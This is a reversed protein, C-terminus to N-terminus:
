RPPATYGLYIWSTNEPHVRMTVPIQASPLKRTVWNKGGDTTKYFTSRIGVTSTYYMEKENKPNVAFAYISTSGPPTIMNIPDWDDGGNKSVLVGYRSVWYIQEAKTPYIYIRRYQLAGPYSKLSDKINTWTAGGDRSRLLGNSKTAIYVLGEKNYDFLMKETPEKFERAIQWSNGGDLSKLLTGNAELAYIEHAGYPNMALSKVARNTLGERYMEKWSRNCDTTKFIQRGNTAFITCKDKPHIAISYVFGSNMPEVSQQWTAGDDYSYLLGRDRSLWYMAKPDNPDEVLSYVSVGSLSKVGGATPLVSIGRWTEGSDQSLFFGAPGTTTQKKKSGGFSVCGQGTLTLALVVLLLKFYIKPM